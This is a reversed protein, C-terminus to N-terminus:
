IRLQNDNIDIESLDTPKDFIDEAHLLYKLPPIHKQFFRLIIEPGIGAPDGMTIGIIIKKKGM